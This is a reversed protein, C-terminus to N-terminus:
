RASRPPTPKAADPLRRPLIVAWAILALLGAQVPLRLWLVWLPVDFLDPRQLMYVHAPTVAVTLLFLGIGAAHRTPQWLLAAAGMLEFGGSVWVVERPWPVWPPVIRMEAETFVFHAVGGIAFWLFVVALGIHRVPRHTSGHQSM